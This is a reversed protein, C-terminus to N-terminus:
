ALFSNASFFSRKFDAYESDVSWAITATKGAFSCTQDLAFDEVVTGKDYVFTYESIFDHVSIPNVTVTYSKKVDDSLAVTLKVDTVEEPYGVKVTYQREIGDEESGPIETLTIIDSSSTWTATFKGITGPLVFEGSVVQGDQEFIYMNLAIQAAAADFSPKVTLTFSKKVDDSLAVTLTVETAVEPDGVSALYHRAVNNSADAPVETLTIIDNSSTWTAAFGGITGPLDFEGTVLEEGQALVYSNLASQAGQTDFPPEVTVVFTKKIDESLSVTLIVDTVEDPTGVNAVYHRKVNNDADAPVETLAIVASSSTWTAEFGGITGPLDFEGSVVKGEQEFIYLDLAKQAGETDFPKLCAVMTVCTLALILVLLITTIKKM